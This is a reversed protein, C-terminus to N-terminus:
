ENIICKIYRVEINKPINLLNGLLINLALFRMSYETFIMFIEHINLSIEINM